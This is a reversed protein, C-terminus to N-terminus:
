FVYFEIAGDKRYEINGDSLQRLAYFFPCTMQSARKM